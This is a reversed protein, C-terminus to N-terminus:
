GQGRPEHELAQAIVPPRQEVVHNVALVHGPTGIESLKRAVAGVLVREVSPLFAHAGAAADQEREAVEGDIMDSWTCLAPAVM